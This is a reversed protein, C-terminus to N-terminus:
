LSLEKLIDSRICNMRENEQELANVAKQLGDRITKINEPLIEVVINQISSNMIADEDTLKRPMQHSDILSQTWKSQLMENEAKLMGIDINADEKVRAIEKELESVKEHLSESSM